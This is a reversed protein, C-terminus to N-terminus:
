EVVGNRIFFHHGCAHELLVPGVVSPSLTLPERTVIAHECFAVVGCFPCALCVGDIGKNDVFCFDGPSKLESVHSKKILGM